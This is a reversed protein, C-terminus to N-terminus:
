AGSELEELEELEARRFGRESPARSASPARYPPFFRLDPTWGPEVNRREAVLSDSVESMSEHYAIRFPTLGEPAFARKYKFLADGRTLGGGLVYRAIGREQLWPMVRCQLAANASARRGEETAGSLFYYAVERGHLILSSAVIEGDRRAHVLLASDGLADVLARLTSLEFLYYKAAGNRRMTNIYIRHFETLYRCDPDVETQVDLRQARRADTRARGEMSNWVEEYSRDLDVVIFDAPCESRGIVPIMQEPFVYCRVTVGVVQHKRAWRDWHRWFEDGSIRGCTWPGGFGYPTIADRLNSQRASAIPKLEFPMLVLGETTELAACMSENRAARFAESYAPHCQPDAGAEHWLKLWQARDDSRSASLVQFSAPGTM